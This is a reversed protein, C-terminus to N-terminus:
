LKEYRTYQRKYYYIDMLELIFRFSITYNSFKLGLKFGKEM